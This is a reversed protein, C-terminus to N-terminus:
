ALPPLETLRQRRDRRTEVQEKAKNLYALPRDWDDRERAPIGYKKRLTETIAFAELGLKAYESRQWEFGEEFDPPISCNWAINVVRNVKESESPFSLLRYMLDHDISKWDLDEPFVPPPPLFAEPQLCGQEDRQGQRLGDDLVARACDDIYSDLVCVVRIALYRAHGRRTRQHSWADRFWTLFAGVLVGVLGIIAGTV